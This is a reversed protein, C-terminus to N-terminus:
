LYLFQSGSPFLLEWFECNPDLAIVPIKTKLDKTLIIIQVMSPFKSWSEDNMRNEERLVVIHKRSDWTHSSLALPVGGGWTLCLNFYVCQLSPFNTKSSAEQRIDWAKLFFSLLALNQFPAPVLSASPCLAHVSFSTLDSNERNFAAM